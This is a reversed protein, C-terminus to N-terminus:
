GPPMFILDPDERTMLKHINIYPLDAEAVIDIPSVTIQNCGQYFHGRWICFEYVQFAILKILWYICKLGFSLM